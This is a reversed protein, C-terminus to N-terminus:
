PGFTLEDGTGAKKDAGNSWIRFKCKRADIMKYGFPQDWPDLLPTVQELYPGQWRTPNAMQPNATILDDLGTPAEGVDLCYLKVADDLLSLRERAVSEKRRAYRLSVWWMVPPLVALLILLTRLRYRM